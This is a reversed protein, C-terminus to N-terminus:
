CSRNVTMFLSRLLNKRPASVLREEQRKWGSYNVLGLGCLFTVIPLYTTTQMAFGTVINPLIICTMSLLVLFIKRSSFFFMVVMILPSISYIWSIPLLAVSFFSIIMWVRINSFDGLLIRRNSFIILIFLIVIPLLFGHRHSIILLSSNDTRLVMDIANTQNVELYRKFANDSFVLIPICSIIWLSFFGLVSFWKKNVLYVLVGIGPIIKSLSSLGLFFGCFFENKKSLNYAAAIGFIIPITIQTCSWTIPTWLLSLLTIILSKQWDIGYMIFSCYLLVLMLYSWVIPIIDTSLFSIPSLLLFATPPHTSAHRYDLNVGIERYADGLIPYPDKNNYIARLGIIDQYLDGGVLEGRLLAGSLKINNILVDIKKEGPNNSPSPLNYLTIFIAIGSILNVYRNLLKYALLKKM